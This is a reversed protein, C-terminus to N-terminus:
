EVLVRELPWCSYVQQVVGPKVRKEHCLLFGLLVWFLLSKKM